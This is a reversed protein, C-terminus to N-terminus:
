PREPSSWAGTSRSWNILYVMSETTGPALTTLTGDTYATAGKGYDTPDTALATASVSLNMTGDDLFDISDYILRRVYSRAHVYAAPEKALLNINFCAGMMKKGFAQNGTGRTWDKM